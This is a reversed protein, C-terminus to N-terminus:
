NILPLSLDVLQEVERLQELVRADFQFNLALIIEKIGGKCLEQIQHMLIPTNALEVMSIPCTFTLPRFRTGYGGILILAKM